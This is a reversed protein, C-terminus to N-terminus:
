SYSSIFTTLAYTRWMGGVKFKVVVDVQRLNANGTIDSITISRKYDILPTLVDDSTGLVGDPGVARLQEIAGDDATNVLGDAGPIKLDKDGTLFIGTHSGVNAIKDWSYNGTDRATHVSEIAERAKERAILGPSSARMHMAGIAYAGAMSLLGASLVATAIITEVLSFGRDSRTTTKTM